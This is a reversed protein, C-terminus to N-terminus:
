KFLIKFKIYYYLRFFIYICVILGLYIFWNIYPYIIKAILMIIWLTYILIHFICYFSYYAKNKEKIFEESYSTKYLVESNRIYKIYRSISIALCYLFILILFICFNRDTVTLNYM